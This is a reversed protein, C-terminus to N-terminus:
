RNRRDMFCHRFVWRLLFCLLQSLSPDCRLTDKIIQRRKEIGAQVNCDMITGGEGILCRSCYLFLPYLLAVAWKPLSINEDSNSPHLIEVSFILSIREKQYYSVIEAYFTSHLVFEWPTVKLFCDVAFTVFSTQPKARLM